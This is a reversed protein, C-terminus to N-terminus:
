ELKGKLLSGDIVQASYVVRHNKDTVRITQGQSGPQLCIVPISIHVHGGDLLLTAPSGSRLVVSKVDPQLTSDSPAAIAKAAEGQADIGQGVRISVFFPLCEDHSECELRALLRHNDLKEVSRVKLIPAPTTAVVETLLSVQEPATEVGAKSIVAAIISTGIAYHEVAASVPLAAGAVMMSLLILKGRIM